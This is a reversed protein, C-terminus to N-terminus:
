KNLVKNLFHEFVHIDKAGVEKLTDSFHSNERFDPTFSISMLSVGRSPSLILDTKLYHKAGLSKFLKEGFEEIMNKEDQRFTKPLPLHYVEEGRFNAISHLTTPKGSILEEVLISGKHEVGGAQATLDIIANVLEPFTKAVHVGMPWSGVPSAMSIKGSVSRVIWPPPFKGFVEQAKGMAYKDISEDSPLYSTLIMSRPMNINLTQMHERLKDREDELFQHFIETEIKPIRLDEILSSVHPVTNWVIDIKSTLSAPMIPLGGIHWIGEKDIFVDVPIWKPYLKNFVFSILDGGKVLSKEYTNGTGGRVIGIKKKLM